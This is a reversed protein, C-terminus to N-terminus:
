QVMKKIINESADPPIKFRTTMPKPPFEFIETRDNIRGSSSLCYYFKEFSQVTSTCAPTLGCPTQEDMGDVTRGGTM